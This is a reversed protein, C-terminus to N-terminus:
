REDENQKDLLPTEPKRASIIIVTNRKEKSRVILFKVKWTTLEIIWNRHEVRKSWYKSVIIRIEKYHITDFWFREKMCKRMHQTFKVRM